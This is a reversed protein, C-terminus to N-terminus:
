RSQYVIRGAVVTMRVTAGAIDGPPCTSIDRDLITFDADKGVAITGREKEQFLAYAADSTYLAIAETRSLDERPTWGGPPYGAPDQRVFAAHIQVLPNNTEIPFDSGGCLFAGAKLLSGWAYGEEIRRPGLRAPAWPMDSTTFTGQICAIVGLQAFRPRDSDAVIQAHEIRPRADRPHVKGQAEGIADLVARNARDGIAHVWLQFGSRFCKEAIREIEEPPTVFYGRNGPDDSYDALLAAGRSGLAGDAFVKVARVTLLGDFVKGRRLFQDLDPQVGGFTAYVRIPLKGQRALDEWVAITASDYASADGVETLGTAACDNMARELRRELVQRSLPPQAKLILDMANDLFVGTPDGRADRIVRGGAPDATHRTVGAARMAASNTWIAHGDIRTAVVPRSPFVADLMAADPFTKEKWLNQDWGRGTEWDKPTLTGANREMRRVCALPSAAGKLDAEELFDGLAGLHGHADTMGPFVYAGKLDVPRARPFEQRAEAAPGIFAVKGDRAVIAVPHPEAGPKSVVHGNEFLLDNEARVGSVSMLLLGIALIWRM